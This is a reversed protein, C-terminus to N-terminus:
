DAIDDIIGDCAATRMRLKFILDEKPHYCQDLFSRFYDVIESLLECDPREARQFLDCEWELIRLLAEIEDHDRRLSAVISDM